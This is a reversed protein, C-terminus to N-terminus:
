FPGQPCQPSKGVWGQDRGPGPSRCSGAPEKVAWTVNGEEGAGAPYASLYTVLM